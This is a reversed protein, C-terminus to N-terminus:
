PLEDGRASVYLAYWDERTITITTAQASAKIRDPNASGIIPQIMSPHRMLWALVLADPSVGYKNALNTVLDRTAQEKANLSVNAGSYKGQSAPAWSQMQIGNLKAYEMTGATFNVHQGDPNGAYIGEELWGLNTLSMEIQNAVLPKELYHNLCQMQAGNMNSVGLHRVKGSQHLQYFAEAVEEPQMLPDPRHLLLIDLYDTNLRKLIGEVSHLIWSASFDYRKPGFEDDFRIGCKSQIILESRLAPRQALLEGFVKEAKGMKYIDAHDIVNIGADLAADIACHAQRKQESTTPNTDWDGGIAMCGYVLQSASPFYTQIPLTNMAREKQSNSYLTAASM